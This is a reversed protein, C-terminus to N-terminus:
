IFLLGVRGMSGSAVVSLYSWGCWSWLLRGWRAGVLPHSNLGVAFFSLFSEVFCITTFDFASRSRGHHWLRDCVSLGRWVLELSAPGLAGALPHSSLGVAFFSIFFSLEVHM